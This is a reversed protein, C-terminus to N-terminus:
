GSNLARAARIDNYLARVKANKLGTKLKARHQEVAYLHLERLAADEMLEAHLTAAREANRHITTNVADNRCYQSRCRLDRRVAANVADGRLSQIMFSELSRVAYHSVYGLSHTGAETRCGRSIKACYAEPM